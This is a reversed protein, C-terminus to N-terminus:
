LLPKVYIFNSKSIYDANFVVKVSGILDYFIVKSIFRMIM